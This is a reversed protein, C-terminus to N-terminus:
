LSKIGSNSFQAEAAVPAPAFAVTICSTCFSNNCCSMSPSHKIPVKDYTISLVYTAPLMAVYQVTSTSPDFIGQVLVSINGWKCPYIGSCREDAIYFPSNSQDQKAYTYLNIEFNGVALSGLVINGFRDKAVLSFSATSTATSYFTGVGAASCASALIKDPVVIMHLPISKINVLSLSVFISYNGAVQAIETVNSFYYGNEMTDASAYARQPGTFVAQFYEGSTNILNSYQDKATVFLSM